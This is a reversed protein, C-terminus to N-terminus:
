IVFNSFLINCWSTFSFKELVIVFIYTLPLAHILISLLTVSVKVVGPHQALTYM